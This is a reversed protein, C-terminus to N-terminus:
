SVSPELANAIDDAAEEFEGNRLRTTVSDPIRAVEGLDQLFTSWLPYGFPYALGAGVYPIVGVGKTLGDILLGISAENDRDTLVSQLLQDDAM